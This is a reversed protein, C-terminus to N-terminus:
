SESLYSPLCSATKIGVIILFLKPALLFQQPFQFFDSDFLLTINFWLLVLALHLLYKPSFFISIYFIVLHQLIIIWILSCCIRYKPTKNIIWPAMLGSATLELDNFDMCLALCYFTVRDQKLDASQVHLMFLQSWEDNNEQDYFFKSRQGCSDANTM